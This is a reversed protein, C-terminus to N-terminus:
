LSAYISTCIPTTRPDGVLDAGMQNMVYGVAIGADPDAFGFSGGWGSHGFSNPNPGYIGIKNTAFGMAWCPEFGLLQDARRTQITTMKGITERSLVRTGDLEGGNALMAYVRAVGQASAQGNAAAIEAARWDRTNAREADLGPNTLAMRAADPLTLTTIDIANRPSLMQAARSDLAEPLGVYFDAQLKGTIEGRVFEGFPRKAVRRVLEGALWGYTMAHYSNLEGAEWLPKQRALRGAVLDWDYMDDITTPEVFGPLGAQHSLLQAVTIKDKGGQAFEPWVSAVRDEYRLLGRDVLVGVATATLGKTTSWVNALTDRSWARSRAADRHGAWIDVVCKGRQYVALAAGVEEYDDGRTFNAAFTERVGEFGPAVRGEVVTAKQRTATNM